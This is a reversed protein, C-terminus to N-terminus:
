LYREAPRINAMSGGDNECAEIGFGHIAEVGIPISSETGVCRGDSLEWNQIMETIKTKADQLTHVGQWHRDVGSNATCYRQVVRDGGFLAAAAQCQEPLEDLVCVVRLPDVNEALTQYKEDHYLLYDYIIGHRELWFRTDPDTSDLRQYPRTTTIWVEVKMERLKNVLSVAGPYIPMTRKGGGQRYALKCERYQAQTLGLWEYFKVSGDYHLRLPRDWYDRAFMTFHEHYPALTGDIDLAVIPRIVSSCGSCRM